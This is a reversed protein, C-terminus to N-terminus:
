SKPSSLLERFARSNGTKLQSMKLFVHLCLNDVVSFMTAIHKKMQRDFNIQYILNKKQQFSRRLICYM